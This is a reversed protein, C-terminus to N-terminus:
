KRGPLPAWGEKKSGKKGKKRAEALRKSFAEAVEVQFDPEGDLAEVCGAFVGSPAAALAAVCRHAYPLPVGREGARCLRWAVAMEAFLMRYGRLSFRDSERAGRWGAADFRAFLHALARDAVRCVRPARFRLGLQWLRLLQEARWRGGPRIRATAPHTAVKSVYKSGARRTNNDPCAGARRRPLEYADGDGDTGALGHIVVVYLQFASPGVDHM